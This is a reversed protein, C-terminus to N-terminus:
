SGPRLANASALADLPATVDLAQVGDYVLIVIKKAIGCM